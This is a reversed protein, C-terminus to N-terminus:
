NKNEYLNIIKLSRLIDSIKKSISIANSARNTNHTSIKLKFYHM